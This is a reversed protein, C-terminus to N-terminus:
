RGRKWSFQTLRYWFPLVLRSKVPALSLSHCHCWRPWICTQVESWVSLWALVGGSLKKCAPHGEERWVLLTLASFAYSAYINLLLLWFVTWSLQISFWTAPENLTSWCISTIPWTASAALGNRKLRSTIWVTITLNLATDECDRVCDPLPDPLPLFGMKLWPLSYM